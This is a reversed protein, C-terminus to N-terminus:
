DSEEPLKLELLIHSERESEPPIRMYNGYLKTMYDDYNKAIQWSYGEFSASVTNQMGDRLYMEGFYHKRGSPISLWKSSDNKCMSYCKQTLIAWRRVSLFSLLFGLVTKIRFASKVAPNGASLASMIKRNKYFNRCSLAFGMGMCIIGHLRRALGGDFVNEMRFIDVCIGCDSRGADEISRSISGKLRVKVAVLGYGASKETYLSYKSGWKKMFCDAFREFHSGLINIDMDDDWPIFGQHRIAGLASGGSLQYVIGNEECVDIIDKTVSLLVRQYKKLTEGEMHIYGGESTDMTKFAEFTSLNM